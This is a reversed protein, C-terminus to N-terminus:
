VWVPVGIWGVMHGYGIRPSLTCIARWSGSKCHECIASLMSDGQRRKNGALYYCQCNILALTHRLATGSFVIDGFYCVCVPIGDIRLSVFCIYLGSRGYLRKGFYM